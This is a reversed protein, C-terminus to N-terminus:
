TLLILLNEKIIKTRARMGNQITKKATRQVMVTQCRGSDIGGTDNPERESYLVRERRPSDCIARRANMIMNQQDMMKEFLVQNRNLISMFGCVKKPMRQM